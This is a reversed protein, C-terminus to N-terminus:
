RRYYRQAQDVAVIGAVQLDLLEMSVAAFDAGSGATLQELSLAGGQLLQLLKRGLETIKEMAKAEPAEDKQVSANIRQKASDFITPQVIKKMGNFAGSQLETLIDQPTDVPKAGMRMLDHCGVSTGDFINGPVCFVERGEDAAINATILAGSRRAAEAVLVGRALGAIIRNRAPFNKALPPMGPAFETIVAGQRRIRKFLGINEEPYLKDLGSGLVAVTRGGAQLCAEHAAADIGRAGGSVIVYGERALAGAFYAAARMGYGTAARSGVVSVAKSCDPLEGQVYLVLPPDGARRLLQPYAADNISILQVGEQRCFYALEQVLGSRRNDCFNRAQEPTVLKTHLLTQADAEFVARASGLRRVLEPVRRRGLGPVVSCLAALYLNEM